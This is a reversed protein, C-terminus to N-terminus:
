FQSFYRERSTTKPYTKWYSKASRDWKRELPDKGLLRFILAVLTMVVYWMVGLMAYSLVVGLPFAILTLAWYLPLSAKPWVLAAVGSVAAIVWFALAWNPHAHAHLWWGMLGFFVLAAAGFVRLQKASPKLELAIM